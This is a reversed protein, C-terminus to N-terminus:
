VWEDMAPTKVEVDDVAFDLNKKECFNLVRYLIKSDMEYVLKGTAASCCVRITNEKESLIEVTFESGLVEEGLHLVAARIEAANM